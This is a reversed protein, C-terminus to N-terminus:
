VDSWRHGLEITLTKDGNEEEGTQFGFVSVPILKNAAHYPYWDLKDQIMTLDLWLYRSGPQLLLRQISYYDAIAAGDPNRGTFKSCKLNFKKRFSNLGVVEGSIFEKTEGQPEISMYPGLVPVSCLYVAGPMAEVASFDAVVYPKVTTTDSTARIFHAMPFSYDPYTIPM